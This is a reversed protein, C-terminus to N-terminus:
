VGHVNREARDHELQSPRLDRPLSLQGLDLPTPSRRILRHQRMQYHRPMVIDRGLLSNRPTPVAIQCGSRYATRLIKRRQQQNRADLCPGNARQRLNGLYDMPRGEPEAIGRPKRYCMTAPIPMGIETGSFTYPRVMSTSLGRDLLRLKPMGFEGRYLPQVLL